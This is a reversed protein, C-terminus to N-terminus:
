LLVFKRNAVRNDSNIVIIKIALHYDTRYQLNYYFHHEEIVTLIM